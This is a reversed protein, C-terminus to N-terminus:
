STLSSPKTSPNFGCRALFEESDFSNDDELFKEAFDLAIKHWILSTPSYNERLIKAVLNYVHKKHM